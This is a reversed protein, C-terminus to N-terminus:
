GKRKSLLTGRLETSTCPSFDGSGILAWDPRYEFGHRVLWGRHIIETTLLFSLSRDTQITAFDGVCEELSSRSLFKLSSRCSCSRRGCSRAGWPRFAKQQETLVGHEKLGRDIRTRDAGLRADQADVRKHCAHRLRFLACAMRFTQRGAGSHAFSSPRGIRQRDNGCDGQEVCRGRAGRSVRHLRARDKRHGFTSTRWM